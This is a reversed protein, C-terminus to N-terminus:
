AASTLFRLVLSIAFFATAGPNDPPFIARAANGGFTSGDTHSSCALELADVFGQLITISYKRKDLDYIYHMHNNFINTVHIYHPLSWNFRTM